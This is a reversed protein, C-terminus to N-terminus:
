VRSNYKYTLCSNETPIQVMHWNGIQRAQLHILQARGVYTETQVEHM